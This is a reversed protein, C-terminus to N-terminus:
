AMVAAPFSTPVGKRLDIWGAAGFSEDPKGTQADISFLRGDLTGLFM